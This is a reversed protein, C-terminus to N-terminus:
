EIVDGVPNGGIYVQMRQVPRLEVEGALAAAELEKVVEDESKTGQINIETYSDFGGYHQQWTDYSRKYIYIEPQCRNKDRCNQDVLTASKGTESWLLYCYDNKCVMNTRLVELLQAPVEKSSPIVTLKESIGATTQSHELRLAEWRNNMELVDGIRSSLATSSTDQLSELAERGAPGFDFAFATIDLNDESIEGSSYRALQNRVSIGGFDVLPTALILAIACVALGLYTNSKRVLSYFHDKRVTTLLYIVGYLSLVLCVVVAWLRDPTLGYQDVRLKLAFVTIIALPAITVALIRTAYQAIRSKSQTTTDERIVANMIILAGIACAFLTASSSFSSNWLPKLGTFPLSLIFVGLGTALPVVLISFVSQVLAQTSAIISDHDRLVGISAGLATGALTIVVIEERLLERPLEIGILSFLSALLHAVGFSLATFIMGLALIVANGWAHEHLAKYDRWHSHMSTQYFPSFVFLFVGLAVIGFEDIGLTKIRWYSIGGAIAGAFLSFCIGSVIHARQTCIALCLSFITTGGAIALRLNFHQETSSIDDTLFHVIIATVAGLVALM